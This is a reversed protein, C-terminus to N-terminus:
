NPQVIQKLNSCLLVFLRTSVILFYHEGVSLVLVACLPACSFVCLVLFCLVSYIYSIFDCRVFSFSLASSCMALLCLSLDHPNQKQLMCYTGPDWMLIVFVLALIRVNHELFLVWLVPLVSGFVSLTVCTIPDWCQCYFLFWVLTNPDQCTANTYQQSKKLTMYLLCSNITIFQM